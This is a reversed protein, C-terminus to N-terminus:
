ADFLTIQKHAAIFRAKHRRPIYADKPREFHNRLIRKFQTFELRCAEKCYIQRSNTTRFARKCNPCIPTYNTM